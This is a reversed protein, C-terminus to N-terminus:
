AAIFENWKQVRHRDDNMVSNWCAVHGMRETFSGGAPCGTVLLGVDVGEADGQEAHKGARVRHRFRATKGGSRKGDWRMRLRVQARVQGGPRGAAPRQNFAIRQAEPLGYRRDQGPQHRQHREPTSRVVLRM